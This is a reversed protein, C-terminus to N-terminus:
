RLALAHGLARRHRASQGWRRAPDSRQPIEGEVDDLRESAEAAKEALGGGEEEYGGELEAPEGSADVEDAELREDDDDEGARKVPM